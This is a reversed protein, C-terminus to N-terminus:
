STRTRSNLRRRSVSLSVGVVLLVVGWFIDPVIRPHKYVGYLTLLAGDVGLLVGIVSRLNLVM